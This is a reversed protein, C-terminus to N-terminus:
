RHVERQLRALAKRAALEHREALRRAEADITRRRTGRQRLLEILASLEDGQAVWRTILRAEAPSIDLFGGETALFSIREAGGDARALRVVGARVVTTAREHGPLVGRSGDPAEVRIRLVGEILLDERPTSIRLRMTRSM